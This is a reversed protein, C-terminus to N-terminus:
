RVAFAIGAQSSNTTFEFAYHPFQGHRLVACIQTYVGLRGHQTIVIVAQLNNHHLRRLHAYLAFAFPCCTSSSHHVQVPWDTAITGLCKSSQNPADRSVNRRAPWYSPQLPVHICTMQYMFISVHLLKFTIYTESQTPVHKPHTAQLFTCVECCLMRDHRIYTLCISYQVYLM